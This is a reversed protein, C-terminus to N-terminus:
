DDTQLVGIFLSECTERCGRKRGEVPRIANPPTEPLEATGVDGDPVLQNPTQTAETIVTRSAKPFVPRTVRTFQRTDQRGPNTRSNRILIATGLPTRLRTPVTRPMMPASLLYEPPVDLQLGMHIPNVKQM